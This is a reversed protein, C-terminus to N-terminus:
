TGRAKAAVVGLGGVWAERLKNLRVKVRASPVIYSKLIIANINSVAEDKGAIWWEPLGVAHAWRGELGDQKGM